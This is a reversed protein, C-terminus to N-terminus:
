FKVVMETFVKLERDQNGTRSAGLTHIRAFTSFDDLPM